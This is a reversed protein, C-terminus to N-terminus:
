ASWVTAAIHRVGDSKTFYYTTFIRGDRLQVSNPYGIDGTAGDSRLIRVNEYDWTQGGDYSLCAHIGCPPRRYGFVCVVHGNRLELLHAPHGWMPTKHTPQWTRGLDLSDAQYVFGEAHRVLQWPTGPMGEVRHVSLLRGDRTLLINIEECLAWSYPRGKGDDAAPEGGLPGRETFVYPSIIGEAQWTAGDDPSRATFLTGPQREPYDPHQGQMVAVLSGDPVRRPYAWAWRVRTYPPVSLPSLEKHWQGNEFRCRAAMGSVSARWWGGPMSQPESFFDSPQPLEKPDEAWVLGSASHLVTGDELEAATQWDPTPPETYAEDPRFHIVDSQCWGDPREDVASRQWTRGDDQSRLVVIKSGFQYHQGIGPHRAHVEDPLDYYHLLLSGDRMRRVRPFSAYHEPDKFIVRHEM